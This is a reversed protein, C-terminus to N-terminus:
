DIIIKRAYPIEEIELRRVRCKLNFRSFNTLDPNSVVDYLTINLALRKMVTDNLKIMNSIFCPILFFVPKIHSHKVGGNKHQLNHHCTSSVKQLHISYHLVNITGGM